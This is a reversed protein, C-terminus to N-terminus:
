RQLDVAAIKRCGGDVFQFAGPAPFRASPLNHTELASDGHRPAVGGTQVRASPRPVLKFNCSVKAPAAHQRFVFRGPRAAPLAAVNFDFAVGGCLLCQPESDVMQNAGGIRRVLAHRDAGPRKGAVIIM